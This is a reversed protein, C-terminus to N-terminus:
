ALSTRNNRRLARIRIICYRASGSLNTKGPGGSGSKNPTRTQDGAKAEADKGKVVAVVSNTALHMVRFENTSREALVHATALAADHGVVCIRWEVNGNPFVEFIDYTREM